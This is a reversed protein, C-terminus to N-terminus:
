IKGAKEQEGDYINSRLPSEQILQEAMMHLRPNRGRPNVKYLSEYRSNIGLSGKLIREELSKIGEEMLCTERHVICSLTNRRKQKLTVIM